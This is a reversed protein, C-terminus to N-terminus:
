KIKQYIEGTITNVIYVESCNGLVFDQSLFRIQREIAKNLKFLFLLACNKINNEIELAKTENDVPVYLNYEYFYDRGGYFKKPKDRKIATPLSLCLQYFEAHNEINGFHNSHISIRVKMSKSALDYTSYIPLLFSCTSQKVRDYEQKMQAYKEKGEESEVFVKKKLETDYTNWLKYFRVVDLNLLDVIEFLEGRQPFSFFSPDYVVNDSKLSFNFTNEILSYYTPKSEQANLSLTCISLILIWVYKLHQTM